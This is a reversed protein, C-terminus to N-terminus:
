VRTPPTWRPFSATEDGDVFRAIADATSMTAAGVARDGPIWDAPTSVPALDTLQLGDTMSPIEDFTRGVSKPFTLTLRVMDKPDIIFMSRVASPDRAAPHIMDYM